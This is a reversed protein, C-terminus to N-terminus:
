VALGLCGAVILLAGVARPRTVPERLVAWGLLVGFVISLQRLGIVISSVDSRLAILTLLYSFTNLVGIAVAAMWHLRWQERFTAAPVRRALWSVYAVAVLATYLFMYGFPQMVQIARKDWITYLAATLAALLAFRTAPTALAHRLERVSAATFSRLQLITIGGVILSLALANAASLREGLALGALVPLFVLAGGRSIPYVFSLDGHRYAAALAAYNLLVGTAAVGAFLAVTGAGPLTPMSWIVFAPAFVVVEALKSIAVVVQSGGSRKLLFNWGAHLVASLLVLLATDGAV